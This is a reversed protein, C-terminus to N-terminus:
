KEDSQSSKTNLENHLICSCKPGCPTSQLQDLLTNMVMSSNPRNAIDSWCEILLDQIAMPWRKSVTPRKGNFVVLEVWKTCSLKSFPIKLALVHWMLLGFSFIDASENYNNFQAVEPAMYRCTGVGGPLDYLGDKQKEKPNLKVALDFDFLKVCGQHTFGINGPKIDRHIINQEHLHHIASSIDYLVNLRMRDVYKHKIGKGVWSHYEEELTHSLSELIIFYPISPQLQDQVMTEISSIGNLKIINDHTISALTKAERLLSKVNSEESLLKDERPIKLVYNSTKGSDQDKTSFKYHSHNGVVECNCGHDSRFSRRIERRPLPASKITINYVNSLTGSGRYAGIELNELDFRPINRSILSVKRHKYEVRNGMNKSIISHPTSISFNHFICTITSM